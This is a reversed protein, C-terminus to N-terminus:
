AADKKFVVVLRDQEPNDFALSATLGHRPADRMLVFSERSRNKNFRLSKVHAYHGDKAMVTMAIERLTKRTNKQTM